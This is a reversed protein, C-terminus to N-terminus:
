IGREKRSRPKAKLPSTLDVNEFDASSQSSVDSGESEDLEEVVGEHNSENYFESISSTQFKELTPISKSKILFKSQSQNQISFTSQSRTTLTLFMRDSENDDTIRDSFDFESNYDKIRKDQHKRARIQLCQIISFITCLIGLAGAICAIVIGASGHQAYQSGMINPPPESYNPNGSSPTALPTPLSTITASNKAISITSANVSHTLNHINSHTFKDSSIFTSPAPTPLAHPSSSTIIHTGNHNTNSQNHNGPQKQHIVKPSRPLRESNASM